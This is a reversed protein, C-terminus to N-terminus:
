FTAVEEAAKKAGWKDGYAFGSADLVAHIEKDLVLNKKRLVSKPLLSYFPTLEVGKKQLKAKQWIGLEALKEKPSRHSTEMVFEVHDLENSLHQIIAHLMLEAGKNVFEVGRLEIFM